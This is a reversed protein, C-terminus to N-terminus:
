ATGAQRGGQLLFVLGAAERPWPVGLALNPHRPESLPRGYVDRQRDTIRLLKAAFAARAPEEVYIRFLESRLASLDSPEREFANSGEIPRDKFSLDHVAKELIRSAHDGDRPDWARFLALIDEQRMISPLVQAIVPSAALRRDAVARTLLEHRIDSHKGLLASLANSLGPLDHRPSAGTPPNYAMALLHRAAVPSGLQACANIYQHSNALDPIQAALAILVKISQDPDIYGLAYVIRDFNQAHKFQDPLKAVCEIISDPADSFAMLEIWRDFAWWENQSHWTQANFSSLAEDYGQRVYAAPVIEGAFPLM